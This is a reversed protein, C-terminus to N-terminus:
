NAFTRWKLGKCRIQLINGKDDRRLQKLAGVHLVKEM